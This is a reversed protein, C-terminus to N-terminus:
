EDRKSQTETEFRCRLTDTRPYGCNYRFTEIKTGAVLVLGYYGNSGVDANWHDPNSPRM